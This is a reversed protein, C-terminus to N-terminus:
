STSPLKNSKNQKRRDARENITSIDNQTNLREYLTECKELLAKDFEKAHSVDPTSLFYKEFDLAENDVGIKDLVSRMVENPQSRLDDQCVFICMDSHKELQKFAAYWYSLWYDISMIDYQESDFGPFAMPLHIIGFEHHGIDRMYRRVFDDDNQRKTFNYHQRLLSEAHTKPHRLPIIFKCKPFIKALYPLRAINANNKSVYVTENGATQERSGLRTYAIKKIHQKLFVEAEGNEDDETWLAISKDNYKDPWFMKWIVEEFAEPTNLDISLGDGHARQKQQVNRKAGGALKDWLIPATVFPMDRYTHTVFGPIDYLANLVATTGGRALSTVFVVDPESLQSPGSIFKDELKSVFKLMKGKGSFALAHIFRESAAYGEELSETEQKNKTIKSVVMSLLIVSVTVILIYDVRLMLTFVNDADVLDFYDSGMIVLAAAGLTLTFRIFLNFSAIILSFGAKRVALEKQDDTLEPDMMASVGSMLTETTKRGIQVINLWTFVLCFALVALLSVIISVTM